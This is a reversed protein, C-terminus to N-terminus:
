RITQLKVIEVIDVNAEVNHEAAVIDGPPRIPVFKDCLRVASTQARPRSIVRREAVLRFNTWIWAPKLLVSASIHLASIHLISLPM